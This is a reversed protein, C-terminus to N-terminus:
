APDREPLQNRRLEQSRRRERESARLRPVHPVVVRSVRDALGFRRQQGAQGVARQHRTGGVSQGGRDDALQGGAGAPNGSPPHARDDARAVVAAVREPRCGEQPTAAHGGVRYQEFGIAGVLLTQRCEPLGAAPDDVADCRCGIEDDIAHDTDGPRPRQPRVRGFDELRDIGLRDRDDGDVDGAADVASGARDGTRGDVGRQGHREAAELGHVRQGVASPHCSISM